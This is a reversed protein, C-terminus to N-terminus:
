LKQGHVAAQYGRGAATTEIQTTFEANTFVADANHLQEVLTADVILDRSSFLADGTTVIRM